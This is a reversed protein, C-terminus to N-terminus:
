TSTSVRPSIVDPIVTASRRRSVPLGGFRSTATVAFTAARKVYIVTFRTTEPAEGSGGPPTITTRGEELATDPGLFRLSDTEIAITSGPSDAFSAALQDRIAARGEIREGEEDVVLADEAYTAAAAAADGANFAKTFSAVLGAIAKADSPGPRRRAGRRRTAPLSKRAERTGPSGPGPM